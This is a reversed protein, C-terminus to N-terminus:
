DLFQVLGQSTDIIREDAKVKFLVGDYEKNGIM